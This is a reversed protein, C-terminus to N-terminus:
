TQGAMIGVAATALTQDFIKEMLRELGAASITMIELSAPDPGLFTKFAMGLDAILGHGDTVMQAAGAPVSTNITVRRM